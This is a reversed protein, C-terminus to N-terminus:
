TLKGLKTRRAEDDSSMNNITCAAASSRHVGILENFRGLFIASFPHKICLIIIEEKGRISEVSRLTFLQSASSQNRAATSQHENSAYGM